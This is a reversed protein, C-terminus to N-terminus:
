LFRAINIHLLSLQSFSDYLSYIAKDEVAADAEPMAQVATTLFYSRFPNRDDCKNRYM